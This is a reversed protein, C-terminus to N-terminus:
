LGKNSIGHKKMLDYLATRSVGLAESIKSINGKFKENASVLMDYDVRDRAERLTMPMLAAGESGDTFGLDNLGILSAECMILARQIRNEMERVNGPWEYSMIFESAAKSFGTAKKNSKESFKKLFLNALLLIDDGRERLPPLTLNIVGLRYYLDERFKGEKIARVIDVNTAAIVRADVEIDKRGGVRQITKEQLFRLLKVQLSLPMEGIEDLLLTGEHAYEVKGQVQTFAGTFSGKEVGFLESELLNEPIAGCNIAVFRAEKRNSLKHIARAVLEKGTGSEGIVLVSADSPAIKRITSFVKEMPPCMGVMGGMEEVCSGCAKQLTANEEEINALHMAREIIIKLEKLDIPKRYFDYASMQIAKLANARENQGTVVIVKTSPITKLFFDLCRFGEETSEEHPPLGLDLIVVKPRHEEFLPFAESADRALFVEWQKALGWKLQKRIDESDDVILLPEM